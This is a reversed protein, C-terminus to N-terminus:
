EELKLCNNCVQEDVLIGDVLKREIDLEMTHYGFFKKNCRDCVAYSHRQPREKLTIHGLVRPLTYDNM